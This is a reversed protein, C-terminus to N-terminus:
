HLVYGTKQEVSLSTILPRTTFVITQIPFLDTKSVFEAIM